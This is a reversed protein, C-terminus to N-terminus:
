VLGHVSDNKVLLPFNDAMLMKMKPFRSVPQEVMVIYGRVPRKPVPTHSWSSYCQAEVTSDLDLGQCNSGTRIFSFDKHLSASELSHFLDLLSYLCCKLLGFTFTQLVVELLQITVSLFACCFLPVVRSTTHLLSLYAWVPLLDHVNQSQWM